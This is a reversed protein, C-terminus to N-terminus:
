FNDSAPMIHYGYNRIIKGVKEADETRVFRLEQENIRNFTILPSNSDDLLRSGGRITLFGELCYYFDVYKLTDRLSDRVEPKEVLSGMLVKDYTECYKEWNPTGDDLFFEKLKKDSIM